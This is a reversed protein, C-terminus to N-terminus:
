EVFRSKDIKEKNIIVDQSVAIQYNEEYLRIGKRTDPNLILRRFLWNGKILDNGYFHIAKQLSRPVVDVEVAIAEPIGTELSVANTAYIRSMGNMTFGAREMMAGMKGPMYELKGKSNVYVVPVAFASEYKHCFSDNYKREENPKGPKAPCGHPFLIMSLEAAEVNQYFHKRKADYCIAVGVNGFPTRIINNFWGRKFVASEGESKTVTGCLGEPGVIMYRNYYDGNEKDLYGVGIYTSYKHAMEVAWAATDQGCDDAYQWIAQSAMYSCIALEPLVVFDPNDLKALLSEMYIKRRAIGKIDNNLELAFIRM